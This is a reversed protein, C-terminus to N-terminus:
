HSPEESKLKMQNDVLFAFYQIEHNRRAINVVSNRQLVFIEYFFNEREEVPIEDTTFVYIDVDSVNDSTKASSSGGIAIAKVQPFNKYFGLLELNM